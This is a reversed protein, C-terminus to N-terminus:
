RDVWVEQMRGWNHEVHHPVLNKVHPWQLPHVFRSTALEGAALYWLRGIGSMDMM